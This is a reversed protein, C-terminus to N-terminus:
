LGVYWDYGREAWYDAPRPSAYRITGIRKINKVGYKVPIVLRLPAGHAQPLPEGNREYCLLTQPHLASEMDLGVYYEGGPTEMSVYPPLDEPHDFSFTDGSITQPPHAEMFDAFRAGTWQVVVSWGEICKMETVMEARPLQKIRDLDLTLPGDQSAIGHVWLKWSAVDVEDDLGIDGNVRDASVRDPAFTPALRGASFYDRALQENTELTKRLPWPVGDIERRTTLWSWAGFSAVLGVGLGLFGRRTRHRMRRRVQQNWAELAEPDPVTLSGSGLAAGAPKTPASTAIAQDGTVGMATQTEEVNEALIPRDTAPVNNLPTVPNGTNDPQKKMESM